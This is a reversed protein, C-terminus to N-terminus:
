IEKDTVRDWNHTGKQFWEERAQGWIGMFVDLIFQVWEMVQKCEKQRFLRMWAVLQISVAVMDRWSGIVAATAPEWASNQPHSPFSSFFLLSGFLLTLVIKWNNRPIHIVDKMKQTLLGSMMFAVNAGFFCLYVSFTDLYFWSRLLGGALMYLTISVFQLLATSRM